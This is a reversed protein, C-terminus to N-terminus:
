YCIHSIYMTHINIVCVTCVENCIRNIKPIDVPRGNVYVYQRETDNRGVGEGPRSVFGVINVENNLKNDNIMDIYENIVISSNSSNTDDHREKDDKREMESGNDILQSTGEDNYMNDSETNDTASTNTLDIDSSKNSNADLM